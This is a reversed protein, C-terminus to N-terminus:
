GDKEQDYPVQGAFIKSTWLYDDIRKQILKAIIRQQEQYIFEEFDKKPLLALNLKSVSM